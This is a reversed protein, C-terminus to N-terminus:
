FISQLGDLEAEQGPCVDMVIADGFNAIGASIGGFVSQKM